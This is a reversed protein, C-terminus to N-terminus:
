STPLTLCNGGDADYYFHAGGVRGARADAVVACLKTDTGDFIDQADTEVRFEIADEVVRWASPQGLAQAGANEPAVHNGFVHLHIGSSFSLTEGGFEGSYEIM